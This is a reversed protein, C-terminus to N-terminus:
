PATRPGFQSASLNAALGFPEMFLHVSGKSLLIGEMMAVVAALDGLKEFVTSIRSGQLPDTM